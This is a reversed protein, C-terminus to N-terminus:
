RGKVHAILRVDEGISAVNQIELKVAQSLAELPALNAMGLGQGILLPAIYVLLEDVV